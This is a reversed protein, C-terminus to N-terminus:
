AGMKIARALIASFEARTVPAQPKFTGDPYGTLLGHGQLSVVATYAWHGDALDPFSKGAKEPVALVRHLLVALEARTISSDPRFTNDAYGSVIGGSAAALITDYAWHDQSIDKFPNNRGPPLGLWRVLVATAEARSISQDPKFTHDQYGAVLGLRYLYEIEKAAWHKAIDTFLREIGRNATNEQEKENIVARFRRYTEWFAPDELGLRWCATGALNYKEMLGLKTGLSNADEYWVQHRNGDADVFDLYPSQAEADWKPQEMYNAAINLAGKYSIEKVRRGNIWWRGYFPLGLVLKERPIKQSLTKIVQEVWPLAAVPGPTEWHQDYTMVVIYDAIEALTEYDYAQAWGTGPLVETAPLAISLTKGLKHLEAAMQGAFRNFLQKDEVPINELDLNIGDLKHQQVAAVVQAIIEQSRSLANHGATKNFHNSIFPVVRLGMDHARTIFEQNIRISLSGDANIDFYGPMVIDLQDQLPKLQELDKTATQGFLYTISLPSQAAAPVMQTALLFLIIVVTLVRKM